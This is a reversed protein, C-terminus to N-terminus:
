FRVLGRALSTKKHHNIRLLAYFHQAITLEKNLTQHTLKKPAHQNYVRLFLQTNYKLRTKPSLAMLAVACDFVFSGGGGDIFDFVSVKKGDFVCNDKFLDGHIFGENRQTYHTLHQLKKYYAFHNQKTYCLFQKINYNALFLPQKQSNRTRTSTITHLKAMFRAVLVIQQTHIVSVVEGPLRTYLYWGKNHAQLTTVSLGKDFLKKLIEADKQVKEGISREYKKLVYCPTLYTTDIVGFTTPTLQTINAHPFLTQAERLSLVTQVGV